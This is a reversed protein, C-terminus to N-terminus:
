FCRSFKFSKKHAAAFPCCLANHDIVTSLSVGEHEAKKREKKKDLGDM